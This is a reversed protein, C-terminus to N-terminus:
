EFVMVDRTWGSGATLWRRRVDRLAVAPTSGSRVAALVEAFFRPTDLDPIPSGSAFVARAGAAVFASPLSLAQHFFAATRAANCAALVVVPHQRLDLRGIDRANLAYKGSGDPSLVIMSAESQESDLIGHAQVIIEDASGLEALVRSPTALRGRLVRDGPETPQPALPALGLSAPPVVDSIVLRRPQATTTATTGRGFSWAVDVPLLDARAHLPPLAVVHVERCGALAERVTAPAVDEATAHPQRLTGVRGSTAGNADRWLTIARDDNILSAMMCPTAPPSRMAATMEDMAKQWAGDSAAVTVLGIYAEMRAQEAQDDSHPLRDTTAVARRMLAEGAARDNRTAAVGEVADCWAAYTPSSDATARFEALAAHVLRLDQDRGERQVLGALLEAGLISFRMPKCQAPISYLEQRTKNWEFRAWLLQARLEHVERLTTCDEPQRALIEELFANMADRDERKRSVDALLTLFDSELEPLVRVALKRGENALREAENVRSLNDLLAALSDAMRAQRLGFRHQKAREIAADLISEIVSFDGTDNAAAEDAMADFWPDHQSRLASIYRKPESGRRGTQMMMGLLIDSCGPPKELTDLYHDLAAGEVHNVVYNARFVDALPARDRWNLAAIRTIHDALVHGGFYDDLTVAVPSLQLLRERSPAASVAGYFYNRMVDPWRQLQEVPPLKGDLVMAAGVKDAAAFAVAIAAHDERLKKARTRAEDAWGPENLKAVAELQGAAAVPLDLAVLALARNWLLPGRRGSQMALARNCLRLAADPHGRQLEIAARDGLAAASEGGSRAAASESGMASGGDNTAGGDSAEVTDAGLLDLAREAQGGLIEAEALALRDGAGDLWALDDLAVGRAAAVFPRHRDAAALGLRAEIPRTTGAIRALVKEPSRRARWGFLAVAAALIFATAALWRRTM